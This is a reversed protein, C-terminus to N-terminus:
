VSIFSWTSGVRHVYRLQNSISDDVTCIRGDYDTTIRLNNGDLTPIPMFSPGASQLLTHASGDELTIAAFFEGYAM